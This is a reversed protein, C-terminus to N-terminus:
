YNSCILVKNLFHLNLWSVGVCVFHYYKFCFNPRHLLFFPFSFLGCPHESTVPLTPQGPWNYTVTTSSVVFPANMFQLPLPQESATFDAGSM